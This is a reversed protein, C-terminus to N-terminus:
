SGTREHRRHWRLRDATGARHRRARGGSRRFEEAIRERRYALEADLATSPYLQM